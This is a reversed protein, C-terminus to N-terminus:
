YTRSYSKLGKYKKRKFFKFKRKKPPVKGEKKIETVKPPEIVKNPIIEDKKCSGMMILIVLTLIRIMIKKLTM